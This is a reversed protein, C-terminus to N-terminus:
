DEDDRQSQTLRMGSLWLFMAFRLGGVDCGVRAAEQKTAIEFATARDMPQGTLEDVRESIARWDIM